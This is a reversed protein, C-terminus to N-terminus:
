RVAAAAAAVAGSTSSASSTLSAIHMSPYQRAQVAHLLHAPAPSSSFRPLGEVPPPTPQTSPTGSEARGAVGGSMLRDASDAAGFERNHLPPLSSSMPQAHQLYPQQHHQHQHHHHHHYALTTSAAPRPPPPPAWSQPPRSLLPAAGPPPLSTPPPPPPPPAPRAFVVARGGDVGMTPFNAMSAPATSPMPVLVSGAGGGAAAPRKAAVAVAESHSSSPEASSRSMDNKRKRGRKEKRLAAVVVSDENPTHTSTAASPSAPPLLSSSSLPPQFPTMPPLTGAARNREFEVMVVDLQLRERNARFYNRVQTGTKSGIADALGQWDQGLRVAYHMFASREHVSWYSSYGSKKATM